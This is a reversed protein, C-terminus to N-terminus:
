EAKKDRIRKKLNYEFGMRSNLRDLYPTKFYHNTLNYQVLVTGKLNKYIKYTKKMGIMTSWVWERKGLDTNQHFKLPVYTNMAEQELHLLFGKGIKFDLFARPGYIRSQSFWNSAKNDYVFRQNWGIGPTFRGSFKYAAYPNVDFLWANKLQFQLFVGPVVREIFPKGKMANPPRKPLNKLSSVSSYKSKYKSLKDMAAQLEKEKGAFHNVAEKKALGLGDKKMADTDNLTALKQKYGDAIGSQKQLEDVGGIKGAQAEAAKPIERIENLNGKSINKVDGGLGEVQKTVDGVNGLPTEIKPLNGLGTIKDTSLLNGLGDIKPLSYGPVKLAPIKVFENNTVSFDKIKQTFEGVPGKMEPTMEIKDLKGITKSKLQNVKGNFDGEVKQRVQSLSDLKRTLKNSPIKLNNLSDIEHRLEGTQKDIVGVSQQYNDKLSDAKLNFDNRVSDVRQWNSKVSDPLEPLSINDIKAQLSDATQQAFTLNSLVLCLL